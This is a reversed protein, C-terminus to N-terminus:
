VSAKKLRYLMEKRIGEDNSNGYEKMLAIAEPTGISYLLWSFWKAIAGSDSGTYELYDFNRELAKRVFPVTTPSPAKDQLTKAIQQHSRHNPNILLENLIDVYKSIDGSLWILNLTMQIEVPDSTAIANRIETRVFDTENKIDVSFDKLFIDRTIIGCDLETLLQKDHDTMIQDQLIIRDNSAKFIHTIIRV